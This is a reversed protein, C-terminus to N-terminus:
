SNTMSKKLTNFKKKDKVKKRLQEDKLGGPYKKTKYSITVPLALRQSFFTNELVILM